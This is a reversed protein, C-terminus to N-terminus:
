ETLSTVNPPPASRSQRAKRRRERRRQNFKRGEGPPSVRATQGILIFQAEKEALVAVCDEEHPVDGQGIEIEGECFFCFFFGDEELVPDYAALRVILDQRRKIRERRKVTDRNAM